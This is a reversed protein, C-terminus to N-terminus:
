FLKYGLSFSFFDASTVHSKLLIQTFIKKGFHYEIIVKNYILSTNEPRNFLYGGFAIGAKLNGFHKMFTSYLGLQYWKNNIDYQALNIFNDVGFNISTYSNFRKSSQLSVIGEFFKSGLANGYEKLGGSLIISHEYIRYPLISIVANTDPGPQTYHRVPINANLYLHFFNLGLNPRTFSANSYHSIGFGTNIKFHNLIKFDKEIRIQFNTNLYSGIASNKQNSYKDFPKTVYGLGIGYRISLPNDGKYFPFIGFTTIAHINGIQMDNGSNNLTYTLGFSPFKYHRQFSKDGQTRFIVGAELKLSPGQLLHDTAKKHPALGGGGMGFSISM